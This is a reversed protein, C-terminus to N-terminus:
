SVVGLHSKVPEQSCSPTRVQVPPASKIQGSWKINKYLDDSTQGKAWEHSCSFSAQKQWSM